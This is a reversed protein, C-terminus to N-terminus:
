YAIGVDQKSVPWHMLAMHNPCCCLWPPMMWSRTNWNQRLEQNAWPLWLLSVATRCRRAATENLTCRFIGGTIFSKMVIHVTHCGEFPLLQQLPQSPACNRRDMHRPKIDDSTPFQTLSLIAFSATMAQSVCRLRLSPWTLRINSLMCLMSWRSCHMFIHGILKGCSTM